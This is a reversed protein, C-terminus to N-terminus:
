RRAQRSALAAARQDRMSVEKGIWVRWAANWDAQKRGSAKAHNRFQSLILPYNAGPLAQETWAALADDPAWGDPLATQRARRTVPEVVPVLAEQTAVPPCASPTPTTNPNTDRHTRQPTGTETRGPTGTPAGWRVGPERCIAYLNAADPREEKILWGHGVLWAIAEVATAKRTTGIGDAIQTYALDWGPRGLTQTQVFAYVRVHTLTVGETDLLGTPIQTFDISVV